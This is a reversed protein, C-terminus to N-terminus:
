AAIAFYGEIQATHTIEGAAIKTDVDENLDFCAQVHDVMAEGIAIIQANSIAVYDCAARKWRPISYGENARARAYAATLFNRTRADGPFRSGGLLVGAEIRRDRASKAYAYLAAKAVEAKPVVQWLDEARVLHDDVKCSLQQWGPESQVIHKEGSADIFFVSRGLVDVLDTGNWRLRDLPTAALYAPVDIGPIDGEVAGLVLDGLVHVRM